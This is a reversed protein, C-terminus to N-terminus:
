IKHIEKCCPCPRSPKNGAAILAKKPTASVMHSRSNSAKQIVNAPRACSKSTELAVCRSVLFAELDLYKPLESNRQHLQWGHATSRDLRSVVITVLWADWHEVPQGMAKLAAVHTSMTSHLQQLTKFAAEEVQPFDLISRIHSQIVLSRNDYRHILQEIM